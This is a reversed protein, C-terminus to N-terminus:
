NKHLEVVVVLGGVFGMIPLRYKGISKKLTHGKEELNIGGKHQCAM